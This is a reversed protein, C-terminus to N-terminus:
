NGSELKELRKRIDLISSNTQRRFDDISGIDDDHRKVRLELQELLANTTQLTTNFEDTLDRQQRAIQMLTNELDTLAGQISTIQVELGDIDQRMQAILPTNENIWDQHRQYGAWVKRTESEM